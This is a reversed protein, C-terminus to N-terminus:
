KKIEERKMELQERLSELAGKYKRSFATPNHKLHLIVRRSRSSEFLYLMDEKANKRLERLETFDPLVTFAIVADMRNELREIIVRGDAFKELLEKMDLAAHLSDHFDYMFVGVLLFSVVDIIWTPCKMVVLQEIPVHIVEVLIVSLCGWFLSVFFCIHGKYNLPLNSYDWYKVYFLKEMTSGTVLEMATAALAGMVFVFVYNERVNMTGLLISIAAFGYIPIMPGNLFGRNIWQWKKKKIGENVSVYCCEWIWGLFCYWFFFLVWQSITYQYM